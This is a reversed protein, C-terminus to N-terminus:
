HPTLLVCHENTLNSSLKKKDQQLHLHSILLLYISFLISNSRDRFGM